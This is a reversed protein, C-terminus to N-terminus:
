AAAPGGGGKKGAAPKPAAKAGEGGAAKKEGSSGSTGAASGAGEAKGGSAKDGGAKAAEGGGKDDGGGSPKDGGEKPPASRNGYDTAYWGTGKLVFSTASLVRHLATSGCTHAAPPPDSLRQRVEFVQSCGDCQYEYIPM